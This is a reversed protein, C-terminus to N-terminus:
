SIYLGHQKIKDNFQKYGLCAFYAMFPFFMYVYRIKAGPSILYVLFNVAFLTFLVKVLPKKSITKKIGFLALSGPLFGFFVIVPFSLVHFVYKLVGGNSARNVSEGMLSAISEGLNGSLNQNTFYPLVPILFCFISLLILPNYLLKYQKNIIIAVFSSIAIFVLSPLGKALFGIGALFPAITFFYVLKKQNLYYWPLVLVPFSILSYFLDMEAMRSYYLLIDGSIFVFFAVIRADTKAIFRKFFLYISFIFFIFSIVSPLRTVFENQSGSVKYFLAIFWNYLPPKRYYNIGKLTPQWIDGSEVIEQAIIARRPEEHGMPVSNLKGFLAIAIFVGILITFTTNPNNM